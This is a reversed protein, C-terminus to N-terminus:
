PRTRFTLQQVKKDTSKFLRYQLLDPTYQLLVPLNNEFPQNGILKINIDYLYTKQPGREIVVYVINAPDFYFYQIIKPASTVYNKEMVLQQSENFLSVRGLSQRAILFSKGSNEEILDFTTRRSPRAFALRKEVQGALNFYVLEGAETLVKLKTKRFSGGAQAIIRSKITGKLNIPFGPYNLGNRDVAYVYGNELVLVLVERGNIKIFYPAAALRAPMEKGDWGPLVNGQSDYLYLNGRNDNALFHFRGNQNFHLVTLNELVTTDPLNFPFNEVDAGNQDLCYIRNRTAFAYQPPKGAEFALPYIASVIRSDLSDSWSVTGTVASLHHLQYASDQVFLGSNPLLPGTLLNTGTILPHPLSMEQALEYNNALAEASNNVERYQWVIKTSFQDGQRGSQWLVQNFKKILTEYRLLSVKKDENLYRNLLNWANRTNVYVALNATPLGTALLSQQAVGKAWVKKERIDEVVLRLTEESAAMIMFSDIQAAFCRPFGKFVPGFLQAPLESGVVEQLRYSGLQRVPFRENAEQNLQNIFQQTKAATPANVLVIKEPSVGVNATTLYCLALEPAFTRRLSDLVPKVSVLGAGPQKKGGATLPLQPNGFSVLVATREPIIAPLQWATPPRAKLNEHLSGPLTEPVSVGTLSVKQDDFTLGLFSSQVLSSLYDVEAQIEPKFFLSLFPPVQRYNVFVNAFLRRKGLYNLRAFKAAPSELRARNIKRIVQQLLSRDPSLIINNRYTFYGFAENNQENRILQITYGQYDQEETTFFTSKQINEITNRIYRHERVSSVPVYLMLNFDTKSTVHVSTLIRKGHLFDRLTIRRAAASDLWHLNENLNVFYPLRALPEWLDTQKLQQIFTDHRNTELVLVADEPVLAWLSVKERAEQWKYYGYIGAASLLILVLLYFTYKKPM